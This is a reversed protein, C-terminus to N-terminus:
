READRRLRDVVPQQAIARETEDVIRLDAREFFVAVQRAVLRACRADKKVDARARARNRRTSHLEKTAIFRTAGAARAYASESSPVSGTIRTQMFRSAPLFRQADADAPSLRRPKM